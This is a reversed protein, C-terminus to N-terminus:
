YIIRWQEPIFDKNTWFRPHPVCVIKGPNESLWAGWWSFSSNAIIHHKCLSMLWLDEYNKAEVNGKHTVFTVPYDVRLHEKLWDSHDSFCFIHPDTVKRTLEQLAKLYYDLSLILDTDQPQIGKDIPVGYLRRTHLSIANVASIKRSLEEIEPDHETVIKLDERIVPEIDKFYKESQWYGEMYIKGQVKFDLLKKNFNLGEDTLFKRNKFSFRQALTRSVYRRIKGFFFDYSEYRSAITAKLNFHGLSYPHGYYYKKFGSIIDLKLPVSNKLALRRAAAYIFLQNGLGGVIKAIVMGQGGDILIGSVAASFRSTPKASNLIIEVTFGVNTFLIPVLCVTYNRCM